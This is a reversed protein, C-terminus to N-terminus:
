AWLFKAAAEWIAFFILWSFWNIRARLKYANVSATTLLLFVATTGLDRGLLLDSLVGAVFALSYVKEVEMRAAAVLVVVLVLVPWPFLGQLFVAIIALLYYLSM